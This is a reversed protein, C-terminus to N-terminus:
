RHSDRSAQPACADVPPAGPPGIAVVPTTSPPDSAPFSDESQVDVLDDLRQPDREETLRRARAGARPCGTV